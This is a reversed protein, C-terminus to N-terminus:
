VHFIMIHQNILDQECFGTYDLLAASAYTIPCSGKNADLIVFKAGTYELECVFKKDYECIINTAPSINLAKSQITSQPIPKVLFPNPNKDEVGNNQM